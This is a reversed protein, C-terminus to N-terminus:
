MTNALRMCIRVSTVYAQRWSTELKERNEQWLEYCGHKIGYLKAPDTSVVDNRLGIFPSIGYGAIPKSINWVM